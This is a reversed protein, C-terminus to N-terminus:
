PGPPLGVEIEPDRCYIRGDMVLAITYKYVGRADDALRINIALGTGSFEWEGDVAPSAEPFTIMWLDPEAEHELRWHVTGGPTVRARFPSVGLDFTGCEGLTTGLTVAINGELEQAPAPRATSEPGATRVSAAGAAVILAIVLSWRSLLRPSIAQLCKRM